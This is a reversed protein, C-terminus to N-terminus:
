SCVIERREERVVREDIGVVVSRCTKSDEKVYAYVVIRICLPDHLQWVYHSDFYERTAKPLSADLEMRRSDPLFLRFWYDREPTTSHAWDQTKDAEFGGNIIRELVRTLRPDKFSRLERLSAGIQLSSLEANMFAHKRLAPTLLNFAARAEPIRMLAKRRVSRHQQERLDSLAERQSRDFSPLQSM